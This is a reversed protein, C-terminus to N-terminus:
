SRVNTNHVFTTTSSAKQLILFVCFNIEIEGPTEGPVGSLSSVASGMIGLQSSPSAAVEGHVEDGVKAGHRRVVKPWGHFFHKNCDVFHVVRQPLSNVLIQKSSVPSHITFLHNRVVNPSTVVKVSSRKVGCDFRDVQTGM